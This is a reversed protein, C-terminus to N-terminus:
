SVHVLVPAKFVHPKKPAYNLHVIRERKIRGRDMSVIRGFSGCALPTPFPPRSPWM